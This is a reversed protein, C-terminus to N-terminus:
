GPFHDEPSPFERSDRSTQAYLFTSIVKSLTNALDNAIQNNVQISFHLLVSIIEVVPVLQAIRNPYSFEAFLYGCVVKFKHLTPADLREMIFPLLASCSFQLAHLAAPKPDAFLSGHCPARSM